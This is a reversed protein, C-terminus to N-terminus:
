VARKTHAAAFGTIADLYGPVFADDHQLRHDGRPLICLTLLDPRVRRRFVDACEGVPVIDDGEGLLALLPVELASLADAPGHPMLRAALSWLRADTPIFVGAAILEEVLPLARVQPQAEEFTLSLLDMTRSFTALGTQAAVDDWGQRHLTQVTSYTEQVRPSVAPGSNMIVFDAHADAAAELVVWGGQSHGFLGVPLPGVVRRAAGLGALLDDAQMAIDADRWDGTSGGVGRKDFSCVAIGATLLAARIPPFLVDNHRDSPGSGPHMMVLGRPEASPRWISGALHVAGNHVRLPQETVATM